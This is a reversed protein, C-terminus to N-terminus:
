ATPADDPAITRRAYAAVAEALGDVSLAEADVVTTREVAHRQLVALTTDLDYYRSEEVVIAAHRAITDLPVRADSLGNVTRDMDADGVLERFGQNILIDRIRQLYDRDGGQPGAASGDVAMEDFADDRGCLRSLRTAPGVRFAAFLARPLNDVAFSVEATGRLGDFVLLGEPLDIRCELGALIEGMGGPYRNRFAATAEFRERRDRLRGSRAGLVTPIIFADTLERRDPLVAAIPLREALREVTSTKGSGTLGIMILM